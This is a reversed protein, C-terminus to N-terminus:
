GHSMERRARISRKAARHIWWAAALAKRSEEESTESIEDSINERCFREPLAALLPELKKLSGDVWSAIELLRWLRWRFERPSPDINADYLLAWLSFCAGTYANQAYEWAPMFDSKRGSILVAFAKLEYGRVWELKADLASLEADAVTTMNAARVDEPASWLEIGGTWIKSVICQSFKRSRMLERLDEFNLEIRDWPLNPAQEQIASLLADEKKFGLHETGFVCIDIDSDARPCGWAWSGYLFVQHPLALGLATYVSEITPGLERRLLAILEAREM